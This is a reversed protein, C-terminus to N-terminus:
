HKKKCYVALNFGASANIGENLKNLGTCAWYGTSYCSGPISVVEYQSIGSTFIEQGTNMNRISWTPDPNGNMECTVQVTQDEMVETDSYTFSTV